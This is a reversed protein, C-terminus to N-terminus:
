NNASYQMLLVAGPAVEAAAAAVRQKGDDFRAQCKARDVAMQFATEVYANPM